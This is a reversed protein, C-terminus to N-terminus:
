SRTLRAEISGSEPRSASVISSMAFRDRSPIQNSRLGSWACNRWRCRVGPRRRLPHRRRLAVARHNEPRRCLMGGSRTWTSFTTSNRRAAVLFENRSARWCTTTINAGGGGPVDDDTRSTSPGSAGTAQNQQDTKIFVPGGFAASGSSTFRPVASAAAGSSGASASPSPRPPTQTTSTGGDPPVSASATPRGATPSGTPGSRSQSTPSPSAPSPPGPTSTSDTSWEDPPVPPPALISRAVDFLERAQDYAVPAATLGLVTGAITVIAFGRRVHAAVYSRMLESTTRAEVDARFEEYVGTMTASADAVRPRLRRVSVDRAAADDPAVGNLAAFIGKLMPLATGSPWGAEEVVKAIRRLYRAGIPDPNVRALTQMPEDVQERLLNWMDHSGALDRLDTDVMDLAQLLDANKTEADRAREAHDLLAIAERLRTLMEEPSFKRRGYQSEHLADRWQQVWRPLFRPMACTVGTPSSRHDRRRADCRIEVSLSGRGRFRGRLDLRVCSLSPPGMNTVRLPARQSRTAAHRVRRFSARVATGVFALLM